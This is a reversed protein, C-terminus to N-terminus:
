SSRAGSARVPDAELRQRVAEALKHATFPKAIFEAGREILDSHQALDPAYGSMFIVRLDAMRHRLRRVLDPGSMAPMVVDTIVLDIDGEHVECLSLAQQGDAATLTRYGALTLVREALERVALEDEVVLVVQQQGTSRRPAAGAVPPLALAEATGEHVRPLLIEFTTGREPRSQVVIGGGSQTVIGYVTALGLGTGKGPEKTTFFPEFIRARTAEDMGTGSDTMRLRVYAGPAVTGELESEDGRATTHDTTLSLRGGRPMADRANVALNLIVQEMQGVDVKVLLPHRCLDSTLEVDEGILRRLMAQMESVVENLDVVRPQLVQRRSFALLQRTLAAAREGAKKVQVLDDHLASSTPADELAFDTLSLIVSLLNNFDHAVGGALLGIAEMKQATQLAEETQRQQTLDALVGIHGVVIGDDELTRCRSRMIHLAGHRDLVRLERSLRDPAAVWGDLLPLDDPHVLREFPQGILEQPAYGLRGSGGSVYTLRGAPDMSYVIDEMNEVLTRYRAESARLRAEARKREAADIVVGALAGLAAVDEMSYPEGKNGVGIVAVVKAGRIIPVVVERLIPAHGAPLGRRYPLSAYDDHIVPRRERVAEAWVGADDIPYHQGKGDAKCMTELTHTSWMQLHIAREDEDLFHFFGILSGTLREATDLAFRLVDDLSGVDALRSLELRTRTLADARKRRSLDRFFAFVVGGSIPWYSAVVEVQWISGDKRRHTSEFTDNGLTKLRETQHQVAAPDQEADLAWIPMALLEERSFGSQRAYAQNVELIHGELDTMWFGDASTEIVGRYLAERERLAAEAKMRDTLDLATTLLHGSDLQVTQLSAQIQEGGRKVFRLIDQSDGRARARDLHARLQPAAEPACLEFISAGVLHSTGWGLLVEATHNVEVLADSRSTVLVGVPARELYSRVKAESIRLAQQARRARSDLDGATLADLEIALGEAIEPAVELAHPSPSRDPAAEACLRGLRRPGSCLPWAVADPPERPPAPADALEVWCRAFGLHAVVLDCTREMLVAPDREHRFLHGVRRLATLAGDPSETLAM